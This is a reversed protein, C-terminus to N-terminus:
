PTFPKIDYGIIVWDGGQREFNVTAERYEVTKKGADDIEVQLQVRVTFTDDEIFDKSEPIEVLRRAITLYSPGSAPHAKRMEAQKALFAKALEPSADLAADAYNDFDGQSSGSEAREALVGARRSLEIIRQIDPNNSGPSITVAGSDSGTGGQQGGSPIETSPPQPQGLAPPQPKSLSPLVPQLLPWVFFWLVAALLLVSAIIFLILKTRRDM